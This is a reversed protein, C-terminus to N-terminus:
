IDNFLADNVKVVTDGSTMITFPQRKAARYRGIALFCNSNITVPLLTDVQTVVFRTTDYGQWKVHIELPYDGHESMTAVLWVIATIVLIIWFSRHRFM